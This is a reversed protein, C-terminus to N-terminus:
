FKRSFRDFYIFDDSSTSSSSSSSSSPSPSSSSDDDNDPEVGEWAWPYQSRVEAVEAATIDNKLAFVKRVWEVSKNKIRGAIMESVTDVLDPIGLNHAALVVDLLIKMKKDSLFKGDSKKGKDNGSSTDSQEAAAARADNLYTVVSALTGGDVKHLSFVIGDPSDKELMKKITASLVAVSKPISFDQLDSSRLTVSPERSGDKAAM